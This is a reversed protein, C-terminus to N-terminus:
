LSLSLSTLLSLSHLCMRDLVFFCLGMAREFRVKSVAASVGGM